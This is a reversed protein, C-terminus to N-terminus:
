LPATSHEHRKLVVRRQLLCRVQTAYRGVSAPQDLAKGLGLRSETFMPQDVSAPGPVRDQERKRLDVWGGLRTGQDLLEYRAAVATPTGVDKRAVLYATSESTCVRGAVVRRDPADGQSEDLALLVRARTIM